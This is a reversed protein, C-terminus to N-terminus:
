NRRKATTLALRPLAKSVIWYGFATMPLQTVNRGNPSFYYNHCGGRWVRDAEHLRRDLWAVWVNRYTPRTDVVAHRGRVMRQITRAALEAQREVTLMISSGGNTNPGYLMFFNPMGPVTVGLFTEAEGWIEQLQRGGPGRIEFGAFFNTPQFGTALILVDAEVRDGGADVVADTDISGVAKAILHVNDRNLTPYYHDDRIIRKCGFPYQPTVAARTAPDDITTDIFQLAAERGRQYLKGEPRRFVISTGGKVTFMVLDWFRHLKRMFIPRRQRVAREEDSYVKIAKPLVWGPERQFINLEGVHPAIASAVQVASCGTGVLAVRKGTLDHQHEWRATHFTPGAFTDLGPWEPYSPYNLLGTATIVCATEIVDGGRLHVSYRQRSQDWEVLEVKTGFRFYSGLRYQAITDELYQKIEPQSPHSQTFDYEYNFSFYYTETDVQAGPYDNDLWTGGPGPSQELVVFRLGRKHLNYAAAIGAPGAGIVVAALDDSM